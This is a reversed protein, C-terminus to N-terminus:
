AWDRGNCTQSRREEALAAMTVEREPTAVEGSPGEAMSAVTAAEQVAAMGAMGFQTNGAMGYQNNQPQLMMQNM